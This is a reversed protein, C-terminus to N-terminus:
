SHLNNINDVPEENKNTKFFESLDGNKDFNYLRLMIFKPPYKGKTLIYINKFTKSIPYLLTMVQIVAKFIEGVINDGATYRLMELLFYVIVVVGIMEINRYFFLKINFTKRKLHYWIGVGMNAFLTLCVFLGFQKNEAFWFNALELLMVIPALHLIIDWVYKCKELFTPHETSLLITKALIAKFYNGM